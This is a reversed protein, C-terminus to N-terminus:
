SLLRAFILYRETESIANELELNLSKYRLTLNKRQRCVVEEKSIEQMIEECTAIMKKLDLKNRSSPLQDLSKRIADVRIKETEM